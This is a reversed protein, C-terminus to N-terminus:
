QEGNNSRTFLNHIADSLDWMHKRAKDNKKVRTENEANGSEYM